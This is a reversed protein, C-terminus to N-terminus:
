RQARAKELLDSLTRLESRSMHGLQEQHMRRVPGDLKELLDLGARTIRAMVFRRDADDRKRVVLGAEEMRDLLRTVDPVPTLMRDQVENRCRGESGAGRLIRLVNYQTVTLGHPKLGDALRHELQAATRVANLFAEQEVSDFPATQKIDEKLDPSMDYCYMNDCM